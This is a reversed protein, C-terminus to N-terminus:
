PSRREVGGNPDILRDLPFAWFWDLGTGGTLSNVLADSFVTAATPPTATVATLRYSGNLGGACEGQLHKVRLAYAMTSRGWEAMLADLAARSDDHATTGGILIDDGAGGDLTDIGLGGILLDRGGNGVLTDNGAGGLVISNGKGARLTDDGGGGSLWTRGPFASADIVNDRDGGSLDAEEVTTRVLVDSGLGSLRGNAAATGQVLVFSVDGSEVLRDIGSGGDLRDDGLGGTM